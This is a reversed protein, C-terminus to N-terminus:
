REARVLVYRLGSQSSLSACLRGTMAIKLWEASLRKHLTLEKSRRQAYAAFGALVGEGEGEVDADLDILKVMQLGSSKLAKEMETADLQSGLPVGAARLILRTISNVEKPILLTSFVLVGGPRLVQSAFQAFHQMSKAHYAADVCIMTDQSAPPLNLPLPLKDFRGYITTWGDKALQQLCTPQCELATLKLTPDLGKWHHLSAGYGCGADLLYSDHAPTALQWHRHALATAASLYDQDARQWLGLNAWAAPDDHLLTTSIRFRDPNSM